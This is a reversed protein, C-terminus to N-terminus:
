CMAPSKQRSMPYYESTKAAVYGYEENATLDVNMALSFSNRGIPKFEEERGDVSVITVKRIQQLLNENNSLLTFLVASSGSVKNAGQEWKEITKKTVGMINALAIQTLGYQRRFAKVYNGNIEDITYSVSIKRAKKLADFNIM